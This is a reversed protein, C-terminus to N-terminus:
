LPTVFKKSCKLKIKPPKRGRVGIRNVEKDEVDGMMGKAGGILFAFCLLLFALLLFLLLFGWYLLVSVSFNRSRREQREVVEEGM